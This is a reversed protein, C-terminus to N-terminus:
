LGPSAIFKFTLLIATRVSLPRLESGDTGSSYCNSFSMGIPLGREFWQPGSSVQASTTFVIEQDTWNYRDPESRAGQLLRRDHNYAGYGIVRGLTLIAQTSDFDFHVPHPYTVVYWYMDYNHM